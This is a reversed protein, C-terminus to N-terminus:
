DKNDIKTQIRQHIKEILTNEPLDPLEFMKFEPFANFQRAKLIRTRLQRRRQGLGKELQKMVVDVRHEQLEERFRRRAEDLDAEFERSFEALETELGRSLEALETELATRWTKRIQSSVAEFEMILKRLNILGMVTRTADWIFYGALLAEIIYQWAMPIISLHAYVWPNIVYVLLAGVAGWILSFQLCIYGKYNFRRTSYDWWKIHFLKELVGGTVLEIATTLLVISLVVLVHAYPSPAIMLNIAAAFSIIVIAGTGYIPCFPGYMFGRNVYKGQKSYAYAVEMLWGLHAYVFFLLGYNHILEVM